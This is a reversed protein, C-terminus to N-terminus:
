VLMEGGLLLVFLLAVAISSLELWQSGGRETDNVHQLVIGLGALVTLLILVVYVTDLIGAM